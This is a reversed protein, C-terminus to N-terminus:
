ELRGQIIDEEEYAHIKNILDDTIEEVLAGLLKSYELYEPWLVANLFGENIRVMVTTYKQRYYRYPKVGYKRCIALLLKKHWNDSTYLAYEKANKHIELEPYKEVIRAKASIAAEQEGKTAAGKILAEIKKIRDILNEM